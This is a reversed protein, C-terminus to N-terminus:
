LADMQKLEELWVRIENDYESALNSLVLQRHFTAAGDQLLEAAEASPFRKSPDPAILGQCFKMLLENRTVEDPLMDNLRSPLTRKAEILNGLTDIEPFCPRGSLMEILVYGLSALDSRPSIPANDLVEPAAYSPTCTRISPIDDLAFASGIDILKAHGTRKLMINSPKIDGHVIRERHLAALAALCDRVIAVAVGAKFRCQTPGATVIVSNIYEWRKGGVRGRIQALRSLDSLERLDYGDVWEMVMIRIRNRDVFDQVGLVADHQITAVKSAVTGIRLMAEEYAAQTQYREPSFFKMAVPLSFGDTGKRHSLFVIGQGGTGLVRELRHYTTWQLRQEDILANYRKLLEPNNGSRGDVGVTRTMQDQAFTTSHM